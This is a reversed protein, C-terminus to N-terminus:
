TDMSAYVSPHGCALTDVCFVTLNGIYKILNRLINNPNGLIDAYGGGNSGHVYMPEHTIGSTIYDRVALSLSGDLSSGFTQNNPDTTEDSADIASRSDVLLVGSHRQSGRSRKIPNQNGNDYISDCRLVRGGWTSFLEAFGPDSRNTNAYLYGFADMYDSNWGQYIGHATMNAVHALVFTEIESKTQGGLPLGNIETTSLFTGGQHQIPFLPGGNRAQYERIIANVGAPEWIDALENRGGQTTSAHIGPTTVLRYKILDDVFLQADAATWGTLTDTPWDDVDFSCIIPSDPRTIIGDNIAYQMIIPLHSGESFVGDAHCYVPHTGDELKWCVFRDPDEDLTALITRGSGRTDNSPPVEYHSTRIAVQGMGTYTAVKAVDLVSPAAYSVTRDCGFRSYLFSGDDIVNPAFVPLYDGNIFNTLDGTSQLALPRMLVAFEYPKRAVAASFDAGGDDSVLIRDVSYGMRRLCAHHSANTARNSASQEVSQVMLVHRAM